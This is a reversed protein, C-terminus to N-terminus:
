VRGVEEEITAEVLGDIDAIHTHMHRRAASLLAAGTRWRAM